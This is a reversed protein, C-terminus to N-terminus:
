HLLSIDYIYSSADFMHIAATHFTFMIPDQDQFIYHM